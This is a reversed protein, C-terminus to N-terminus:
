RAKRIIHLALERIDDFEVKEDPPLIKPYKGESDCEDLRERCFVDHRWYYFKQLDLSAAVWTSPQHNGSGGSKWANLQGQNITVRRDKGIIKAEILTEDKDGILTFWLDPVVSDEFRKEVVGRMAAEGDLILYIDKREDIFPALYRYLKAVFGYEQKMDRRGGLWNNRLV